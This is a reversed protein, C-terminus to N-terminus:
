LLPFHVGRLWLVTAGVHGLSSILVLCVQWGQGVGGGGSDVLDLM